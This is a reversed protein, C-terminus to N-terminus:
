DLFFSVIKKGIVIAASAIIALSGIVRWEIRDNMGAATCSYLLAAIGGMALIFVALWYIVKMEAGSPLDDFRSM